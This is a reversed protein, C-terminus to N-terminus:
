NKIKKQYKFITLTMLQFLSMCIMRVYGRTVKQKKQKKLWGKVLAELASNYYMIVCYGIYMLFLIVAEHTQVKEDWVFVSLVILGISYYTCDRFLPWWTLKLEVSSCAACLGIVFLV